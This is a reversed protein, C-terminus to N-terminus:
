HDTEKCFDVYPEVDIDIIGHLVKYLFLQM